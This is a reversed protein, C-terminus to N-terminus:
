NIFTNKVRKSNWLYLSWVLVYFITRFFSTNIDSLESQSYLSSESNAVLAILGVLVIQLISIGVFWEKFVKKRKIMLYNLWIYFLIILVNFFIDLGDYSQPEVIIQFFIVIPTVFVGLGFLALWGSFGEIKQESKNKTAAQNNEDVQNNLYYKEGCKPCFKYSDDNKTGCKKCFM